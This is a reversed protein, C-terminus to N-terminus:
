VTEHPPCALAAPIEVQSNGKAAYEFVGESHMINTMIWLDQVHIQFQETRKLAHSNLLHVQMKQPQSLKNDTLDLGSQKLGSKEFYWVHVVVRCCM